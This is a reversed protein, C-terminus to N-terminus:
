YFLDREGAETLAAATHSLTVNVKGIVVPSRPGRHSPNQWPKPPLM